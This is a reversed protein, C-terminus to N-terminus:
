FKYHASLTFTRGPIVSNFRVNSNAVPGRFNGSTFGWENTLNNALLSVTLDEALNYNVGLNVQTYAPLTLGNRDAFRKSYYQVSAFIEANDLSLTPTFRLQTEPLRTTPVAETTGAGEQESNMVVGSVNFTLYDTVNVDLWFEIGDAVTDVKVAENVGNENVEVVGSNKHTTDFYTAYGSVFESQYRVGIEAFTLETPEDTLGGNSGAPSGFGPISYFAFENLYGMDESSAWRAYVALDDTITWNGGVTYSDTEYDVSGIYIDGNRTIGRADDALVNNGAGNPLPVGFDVDENYTTMEGNEHRTGFDIRFDDTIEVEANIYYNTSVTELSGYNDLTGFAVIGNDTLHGVVDGNSDLGEVDYRNVNEKIDILFGDQPNASDTTLDWHQVGGTIFVTGNENEWDVRFDNIFFDTERSYQSSQITTLFGNGNLMSPDAIVEGDNVRVLRVSEIGADPLGAQLVSLQDAVYDEAELISSDNGGRLDHAVTLMTSTRFKDSISFGNDFHYDFSLTLQDTKSVNGDGLDRRVVGEPRKSNIYRVDPGSLAETQADFGPLATPSNSSSGGTFTPLPNYYPNKDDIKKYAITFNGNDFEKVINARVQGGSAATYGLDRVGDGQRFTGGISGYWGDDSLPAGYFLETKYQGYDTISVRVDGEPERAIRSIFNLTAGSGQATFIGSPGGLVAEVRDYTLDYRLEFESFFPSYQVPLGDEQLSIFSIFGNQTGRVNLNSNTEGNSTEGQLGPISDVLDTVGAPIGVINDSDLVAVGYSTELATLGSSSSGTVIIRELSTKKGEEEDKNEEAHVTFMIPMSLATVAMGKIAMNVLKAIKSHVFGNSSTSYNM